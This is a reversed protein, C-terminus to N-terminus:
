SAKAKSKKLWIMPPILLALGGILAVGGFLWVLGAIIAIPALIAAAIEFPAFGVYAMGFEELTGSKQEPDVIKLVAIGTAVSATAWGWSFVAREFWGYEFVRPAVYFFLVLCFALGVVFLIILPVIYTAVVAPVISAIGVAVLFDTSAGSVSGMLKTDLYHPAKILHLVGVGALGVLFAMAFLPFSLAPFADNVWNTLINALFLTVALAAVHLAIPEISSPSTTARGVSPRQGPLSIIGTRMDEPLKDLAPLENTHGKKSGWRAFIVGGVIASFMGVAAATFGLSTAETMGASDLAGGVAAAVGFGGVFGVPLMIGFWDPTNFLPAFLIVGLLAFFGWQTLYMGVSYSWMTRARQRVKADFDMTFPLAGFVAAILITAYDGFHESFQIIGLANPGLLLGLLGATIPAPILLKQFWPIFRRMLNGIILLLSIWGIDMLIDFPTYGDM